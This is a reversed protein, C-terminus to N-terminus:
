MQNYYEHVAQQADEFSEYGDGRWTNVDHKYLQVSWLGTDAAEFYEAKWDEHLTEEYTGDLRKRLNDNM